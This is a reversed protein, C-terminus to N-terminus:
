YNAAVFINVSRAEAGFRNELPRHIDTFKWDSTSIVHMWKYGNPLQPLEVDLDEWYANM